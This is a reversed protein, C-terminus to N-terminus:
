EAQVLNRKMLLLLREFQLAKNRGMGEMMQEMILFAVPNAKVVADEGHPTMIVYIVRKDISDRETTVLKEISMRRVLTTINHQKTNTWNALEAHTMKGENFQLGKLAVYHSLSLGTERNFRSESYRIVAGALQAFLMFARLVPDKHSIKIISKM